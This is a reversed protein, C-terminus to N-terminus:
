KWQRTPKSGQGNELGEELMFDVIVEWWQDFQGDRGKVGETFNSVSTARLKIGIDKWMDNFGKLTRWDSRIEHRLCM